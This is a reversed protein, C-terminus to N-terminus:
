ECPPIGCPGGMDLLTVDVVGTVANGHIMMLYEAGPATCWELEETFVDCLFANDFPEPAVCDLDGCPGCYVNLRSDFSFPPNGCLEIRYTNGNGVCRLWRSGANFDPGNCQTQFFDFTSGATDVTLTQGTSILTACECEDNDTDTVALNITGAGRADNNGGVRIKVTQGGSIAVSVSSQQTGPCASGGGADDNCGLLTGPPCGAGDYVAVVTDFDSGCTDVILTGACPATYNFWVDGGVGTGCPFAPDGPNTTAGGNQFDTPGLDLVIRDECEDNLVPCAGWNVIVQVLDNVNVICDSFVDASCEAPVTCGWQVIVEVLDDVNVEDDDNTDGPCDASLDALFEYPGRDVIPSTGVGTDPAVNNVFRESHDLDVAVDVPVASNDGSDIAPSGCVVRLNDDATGAILDGGDVDAFLPDSGNNGAGGLIGSWGQVICSDIDLSSGPGAILQAPESIIGNTDNGWFITNVVTLGAGFGDVIVGGGFSDGHNNAVTCNVMTVDGSTIYMAGGQDAENGNFLCNIFTPASAGAGDWVFVAGGLTCGCNNVFICNTVTPSAAEVFLGGGEECLMTQAPNGGTITFGDIAATVGVGDAKLVNLSNEVAGVCDFGADDGAIDGSLV